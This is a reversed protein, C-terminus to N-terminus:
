GMALLIFTNMSKGLTNVRFYLHYHSQLEFETVVVGCNIAKVIVGHLCGGFLNNMNFENKKTSLVM